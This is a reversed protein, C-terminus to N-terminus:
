LKKEGLLKELAAIQNGDGLAVVTDGAAFIWEPGVNRTVIDGRVVSIVSAGTRARIDLTVVSGGVAASDPALTFRHITDEPLSVTMMRVMSEQREEATLAERFRETARHGVKIFYRWGVVGVLVIFGISIGITLEHSPMLSIVIMFWEVFWAFMTVAVALKEILSRTHLQWRAKGRGCVLEGVAEGVQKAAPVVLPLFAVASINALCFFFIRDHDEFFVSYRSYDFYYLLRCSTAAAVFLVAYIALRIAASKLRAFAASGRSAGIRDLWGRYAAISDRAIAPLRREVADGVRDSTKVMWPNLLTTLLSAGVAISFFESDSSTTDIGSHLIAVMFAFEGIQALSFGNQVATKVDTGCVLSAFTNNFAKGVIVVASVVLIAPLNHWLAIPDVLLGISVFFVAAFMSKLPEVLGAIHHRIDSSSGLLGVLFAGLALSFDFRYAIFSVFFCIGLLTLVLAEDDKRDGVSALLRPVLVLGLVIVSLFFVLLGGLSWALAGASMGGGKAFGTAVAIAGVTVIDECVSTGLVYKAFRRGGWGMEDIVKALLTTASDCIAVGLFLSQVISWGFVRTGVTYGLWIMVVTDLVASPLAVSKIKVMEKASFSLGMGFMLFVVGLQGITSVSMPDWLLSGGWTHESMVVGSLIYGIVKPWKLRSFFAAVLGAVAMLIALDHFFASETM